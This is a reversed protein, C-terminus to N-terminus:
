AAVESEAVRKVKVNAAVIARSVHPCVSNGIGAVQQAQTGTLVWGDAFDGFQARLLEHPKLMRMGIDAVVYREGDIAVTVLGVRDRGVVTPMPQNAPHGTTSNGYYTQLFAAVLGHRNTSSLTTIPDTISQGRTDQHPAEGNFQVLHCATLGLAHAAGAPRKAHQGATITPMPADLESGTAGTRHKNLFAAVVAHGGGKPWATITPMPKDTPFIGASSAHQVNILHPLCLAFDKSQTMTPMPADIDHEGRGYRGEGHSCRVIFPKASEVVHRMVGNAIRRLTAPKLPRRVRIGTQEYLELAQEPTLFISPCPIAWDICEAATRYPKLHSAQSLLRMSGSQRRGRTRSFNSSTNSCAQGRRSTGNGCIEEVSHRGSDRTKRDTISFETANAGVHTAEPWNISKGDCRAILYFRKRITPAGYDCARLVRHEANYGLGKILAARPVDLHALVSMAEDLAPCHRDVGTTLMGIFAAFTQGKASRDAYRKGDKNITPGWDRFEEVNELTLVRPRRHYLWALVIWALGRVRDSVPAAGRAKSHHTCDPSFHCHAIRRGPEVQRPDVEFVDSQYHLTAPHNIAHNAIAYADHNIAVDVAWGTASEEGVGWGGVGAFSDIVIEHDLPPRQRATVRQGFNPLTAISM